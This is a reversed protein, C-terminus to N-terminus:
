GWNIGLHGGGSVWIVGLHSGLHCGGSTPTLFSSALLLSSSCPVDLFLLSLWPCALCLLSLRLKSRVARMTLARHDTSEAALFVCRQQSIVSRGIWLTHIPLHAARGEWRAKQRAPLTPPPEGMASWQQVGKEGTRAPSFPTPTAQRRFAWPPDWPRGGWHGRVPGNPSSTLSRLLKPRPHFARKASKFPEAPPEELRSQEKTGRRKFPSIRALKECPHKRGQCCQRSSCPPPPEPTSQPARRHSQLPEPPPPDMPPEPPARPAIHPSQTM